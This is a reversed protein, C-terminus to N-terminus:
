RGDSLAAGGVRAWALEYPTGGVELVDLLHRRRVDVVLLRGAEPASVYLREGDPSFQLDFPSVTLPLRAIMQREGADFVTLERSGRNAVWVESGDPRFALRVPDRGGADLRAGERGGPLDIVTITHDGRNAVWLEREDPSLALGDPRPGTPLRRAAVTLRDIVTVSDSSRNVVFLRRGSRSGVLSRSMAGGTKWLMLVEGTAADLEVVGSDSEATIWLRRGDASLAVGHLRRFPSPSVRGAAVRYPRLTRLPTGRELDLVSVTGERFPLGASTPAVPVDVAGDNAVYARRGDPSVVIERPAEATPLRALVSRTAPDLLVVRGAARDVAALLEAPLGEALTRESYVAPPLVDIDPASGAPILGATQAAAPAALGSLGLCAVALGPARVPGRRM